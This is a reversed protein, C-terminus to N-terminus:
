GVVTSLLAVLRGAAVRDKALWQDLPYRWDDRGSPMTAAIRGGSPKAM